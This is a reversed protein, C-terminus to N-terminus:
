DGLLTAIAAARQREEASPHLRLAQEVDCVRMLSEDGSPDQVVIQNVYRPRFGVFTLVQGEYPPIRGRYEPGLIEKARYIFKTGLVVSGLRVIVRSQRRM